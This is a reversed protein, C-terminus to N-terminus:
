FFYIVNVVHYAVSRMGVLAKVVELNGHKCAKRFGSEIDTYDAVIAMVDDVSGGVCARRFRQNHEYEEM